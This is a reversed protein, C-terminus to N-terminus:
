VFDKITFLSVLPIRFTKTIEEAGGELRDILCIVGIPNLGNDLLSGLANSTSKGTTIVDELLVVNDGPKYFGEILQKTGHDKQSKRIYLANLPTFYNEHFTPQNYQNFGDFETIRSLTSVASALPCAGLEVAAVTDVKSFKYLADLILHASLYHGDARLLTTKCDLFYDSRKGSALTFEGRKFSHEKLLSLLKPKMTYYAM